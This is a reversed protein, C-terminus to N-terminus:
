RPSSAAAPSMTTTSTRRSSTPSGSTPARARGDLYIDVDRRPDVVAALGATEDAILTSLHGLGDIVFQASAADVSPVDCGGADTCPSTRVRRDSALSSRRARCIALRRRTWCLSWPPIVAHALPDEHEAAVAVEAPRGRHGERPGAMPDGDDVVEGLALPLELEADPREERDRGEVLPDAGPALDGLVLDLEEDAVQGVVGEDLRDDVAEPGVRDDVVALLRRRGVRHDVDPVRGVGLRVVDDAVEVDQERDAVARGLGVEDLEARHALVARGVDVDFLAVQGDVVLAPRVREEVRLRGPEIYWRELTWSECLM